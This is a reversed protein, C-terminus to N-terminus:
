NEEVVKKQIQLLLKLTISDLLSQSYIIQM